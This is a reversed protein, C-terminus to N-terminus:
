VTVTNSGEEPVLQSGGLRIGIASLLVFKVVDTGTTLM